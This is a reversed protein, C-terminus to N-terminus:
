RGEGVHGAEDGQRGFAAQSDRPVTMRISVLLNFRHGVACYWGVPGGQM